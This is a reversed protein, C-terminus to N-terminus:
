NPKEFYSDPIGSNIKFESFTVTSKSPAQISTVRTPLQIGDFSRYDDYHIDSKRVGKGTKGEVEEEYEFRRILFSQPDLTLEGRVYYTGFFGSAGVIQYTVGDIARDGVAWFKTLLDYIAFPQAQIMTSIKLPEVDSSVLDILTPGSKLWASPGNAITMAFFDSGTVESRFKDKGKLYVKFQAPKGEQGISQSSFSIDTIGLLRDRGGYAAISRAIWRKADEQRAPDNEGSSSRPRERPAQKTQAACFIPSLFLVVFGAGVWKLILQRRLQFSRVAVRNVEVPIKM